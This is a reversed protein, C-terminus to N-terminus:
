ATGLEKLLAMMSLANGVAAGQATNDFICWTAVGDSSTSAIERARQELWDPGYASYYIRPAGHLRWYRLGQWGAPTRDNSIRSPDVAAQAICHDILLPEAQVWSEHRPEIVVYGSYRTRLQEFFPRAIVPDFALSPPLQILLCGLRDGLAGCESLFADLVGSCNQLRLEHTIAKPVKVSFRFDKEVSAAWKAYTAPRHARYFSSNIEVARMRTAYRELHTGHEVFQPWYERALSWGACGVYMAPDNRAADQQHGQVIVSDAETAIASRIGERSSPTCHAM